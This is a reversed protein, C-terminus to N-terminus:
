LRIKNYFKKYFKVQLLYTPVAKCYLCIKVPYSISDNSILILLLNEFPTKGIQTEIGNKRITVFKTSNQVM